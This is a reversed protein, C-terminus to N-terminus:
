GKKRTKLVLAPGHTKLKIISYELGFKFIRKHEPQNRKKNVSQPRETM